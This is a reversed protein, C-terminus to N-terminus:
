KIKNLKSLDVLDGLKNYLEETFFGYGPTFTLEGIYPKNGIVYFDVRVHPFPKSLTRVAEIMEKLCDPKKLLRKAIFNEETEVLYQPISNWEIDFLNMEVQPRRNFPTWIVQPEGECCYFKYDILSNPSLLQQEVDAVLFEEAIICPKIALYHPQYGSYGFPISLWQNLTKVAKKKDLKDKDKVVICTASANNTKLVFSKPLQEFDIDEGRDYRGYNIPLLHELGCEKVYDRMLYKDACRTWESLDTHLTLWYTKEIINKPNDLDPYRGFTSHYVRNIEGIPNKEVAHKHWKAAAVRYCYSKNLFSKVVYKIM